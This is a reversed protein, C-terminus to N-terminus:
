CQPATQIGSRSSRVTLTKPAGPSMLAENKLGKTKMRKPTVPMEAGARGWWYRFISLPALLTGNGRGIRSAPRRWSLGFM